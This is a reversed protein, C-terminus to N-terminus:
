HIIGRQHLYSIASLINLAWFRLKKNRVPQCQQYGQLKRELYDSSWGAYEMYMVFREDTETYHLMKIINPHNCSMHVMCERRAFEIAYESGKLKSKEIRKEIVPQVSSNLFKLSFFYNSVKSSAIHKTLYIETSFSQKILSKTTTPYYIQDMQQSNSPKWELVPDIYDTLDTSTKAVLNLNTKNKVLKSKHTDPREYFCDSIFKTKKLKDKFECDKSCETKNQCLLQTKDEEHSDGSM